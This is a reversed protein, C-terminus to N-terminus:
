FSLQLGVNFRRNLPYGMGNGGMEPDWLKFPSVVFLNEASFYVRLNELKIKKLASTNYGLEVNKMRLFQATAYGFEAFYRADFDYGGKTTILIM